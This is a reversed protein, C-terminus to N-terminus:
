HPQSAKIFVDDLADSLAATEMTEGGGEGGGVEGSKGEGAVLCDLTEHSRVILNKKGGRRSLSKLSGARRRRRRRLTLEPRAKIDAM